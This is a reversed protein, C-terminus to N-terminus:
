AEDEEHLVTNWYEIEKKIEEEKPDQEVISWGEELKDCVSNIEGAWKADEAGMGRLQDILGQLRAAEETWKAVLTDFEKQRSHAREDCQKDLVEDALLIAQEVQYREDGEFQSEFLDSKILDDLLVGHETYEEVKKKVNDDLREMVATRLRQEEDGACIELYAKRYPYEKRGILTLAQHIQKETADENASLEEHLKKAEDIVEQPTLPVVKDIAIKFEALFSQHPHAM